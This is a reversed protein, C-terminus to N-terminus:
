NMRPDLPMTAILALAGRQRRLVSSWLQAPDPSFYDDTRPRCSSGTRTTWRQTWSDRRGAPMVPTSACRTWTGRSSTRTRRSTSRGWRLMSGLSGALAGVAPLPAFGAAPAVAGTRALCIAASPSVPGGVHVLQPPAALDHWTPLIDLVPVDSPRNLVVGLAGEASHDLVAVVTRAFNPDLLSPSAVLLRGRIEDTM